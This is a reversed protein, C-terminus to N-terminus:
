RVAPVGRAWGKLDDPLRQDADPYAARFAALVRAAEDDRQAARLTRLERVYDDVSRAVGPTARRAASPTAGTATSPAASSVTERAASPAVAQEETPPRAAMM